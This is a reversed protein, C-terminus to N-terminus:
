VTLLRLRNKVFPIIDKRGGIVNQHNRVDAALILAGGEILRRPSIRISVDTKDNVDESAMRRM